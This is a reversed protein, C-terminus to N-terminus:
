GCGRSLLLAVSYVDWQFFFVPSKCTSLVKLILNPGLNPVRHKEANQVAQYVRQGRHIKKATNKTRCVCNENRIKKNEIYMWHIIFNSKGQAHSVSSHHTRHIHAYAQHWSRDTRIHARTVKVSNSTVEREGERKDIKFQLAPVDKIQEM